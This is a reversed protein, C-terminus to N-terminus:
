LEETFSALARTYNARELASADPLHGRDLSGRFQDISEFRSSTMWHELEDLLTALHQPGRELLVSAMMAVDAGALLAKIVDETFHIGSNAALSTQLQDHIIAVWRLSLWLEDRTSFEVRPEGAMRDIDIDPHLYRNFLVLGDAGAEVLERAVYSVNSFYPGIKVTLPISVTERVSRVLDIYRQEVEAASVRPDTPVFYVNLELADAGADEIRKAYRTWGGPTTGNLSAIVPIRIAKKAERLHLLYHESGANYRKLQPHFGPPQDAETEQYDYLRAVEAVEHEIIEEILSPLVVAAAGSEELKSLTALNGTLPCASVVLPNKLQLGLYRTALDVSM